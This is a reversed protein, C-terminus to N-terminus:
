ACVGPAVGSVGAGDGVSAAVVVGETVAVTEGAIEAVGEAAL